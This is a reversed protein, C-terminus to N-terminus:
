LAECKSKANPMNCRPSRWRVQFMAWNSVFRGYTLTMPNFNQIAVLLRETFLAVADSNRDYNLMPGVPMSAIGRIRLPSRSTCLVQLNPCSSVLANVMGEVDFARAECGDLILLQEREALASCLREIPALNPNRRYAIRGLIASDLAGHGLRNVDFFMVGDAQQELARQGFEVALRTKGIGEPGILGVARSLYFRGDIAELEESRGVFRTGFAPLSSGPNSVRQVRLVEDTPSRVEYLVEATAFGSYYGRRMPRFRLQPPGDGILLRTAPCIVVGGASSASMVSQLRAALLEDDPDCELSVICAKSTRFKRVCEFGAIVASLCSSFPFLVDHGFTTGELTKKLVFDTAEPPGSVLLYANVIPPAEGM